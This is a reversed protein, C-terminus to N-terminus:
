VAESIIISQAAQPTQKPRSQTQDLKICGNDKRRAKDYASVKRKCRQINVIPKVWEHYMNYTDSHDIRGLYSLLQRSDYATFGDKKHMRNAKRTCKLMITKRLVTRDCYFRYGLFDVDRGSHEGCNSYDFRFVQWNDKLHLNLHEELYTEIQERMKHLKRKNRGFIVMDDVYRWYFEAQLNEKIYHDLDQLYFQSFWQSTYFGLPIGLRVSKAFTSLNNKDNDPMELSKILGVASSIDDIAVMSQLKYWSETPKKKQTVLARIHHMKAYKLMEGLKDYEIIVCVHLLFNDDKINRALRTKLIKRDISNFYHRIDMKLCYKCDKPHHKIAKKIYGACKEAGRDPVSGYAHEYMGHLILPRLTNVTMHHIIQEQDSPVVITRKKRTIGDYIEVPKHYSNYFHAAWQRINPMYKETNYKIEQLHKHKLKGQMADHAAAKINEDSLYTDYLHKYTKM